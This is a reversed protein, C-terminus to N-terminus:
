GRAYTVPQQQAHGCCEFQVMGQKLARMHCSEFARHLYYLRFLLSYALVKGRPKARRVTWRGSGSQPACPFYVAVWPEDEIENSDPEWAPEACAITFGKQHDLLRNSPM